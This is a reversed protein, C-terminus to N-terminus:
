SQNSDNNFSLMGVRYSLRDVAIVHKTENQIELSKGM